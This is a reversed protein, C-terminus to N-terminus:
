NDNRMGGRESKQATPERGEFALWHDRVIRVLKEAPTLDTRGLMARGAKYFTDLM